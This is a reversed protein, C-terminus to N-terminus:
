TIADEKLCLRHFPGGAAGTRFAAADSGRRARAKRDLFRNPSVLM